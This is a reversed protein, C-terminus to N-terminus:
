PDVEPGWSKEKRPRVYENVNIGNECCANARCFVGRESLSKPKEERGKVYGRRTERKGGGWALM